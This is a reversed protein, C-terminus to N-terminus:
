SKAFTTAEAIGTFHDVTEDTASTNTHLVLVVRQGDVDLVWYRSVFSTDAGPYEESETKWLRLEKDRCASSDFGAPVSMKLYVGDHGDLSVPVPTTTNTVKQATLARAFADVSPGVKPPNGARACPDPYVDGIPLLTIAGWEDEAVDNAWVWADNGSFGAPLDLEALPSGPLGRAQIAWCGPTLDDHHFAVAPCDPTPAASTSEKDKDAVPDTAAQGDTCAALVGMLALATAGSKIQRM